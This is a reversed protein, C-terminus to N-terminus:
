LRQSNKQIVQGDNEVFIEKASLCLTAVSIMGVICYIIILVVFVVVAMAISPNPSGIILNTLAQAIFNTVISIALLGIYMGIISTINKLLGNATDKLTAMIKHDNRQIFLILSYTGYIMVIVLLVLM